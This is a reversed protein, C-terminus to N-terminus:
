SAARNSRPHSVLETMLQAMHPSPALGLDARLTRAFSQYRQAAVGLNGEAIDLRILARHASERFPDVAVAALGAVAARTFDGDAICQECLTELARVRLENVHNREGTLWPEDWDPLLREANVLGDIVEARDGPSPPAAGDLGRVALSRLEYLDVSVCSGLALQGEAAEVADPAQRRVQWLATRLNAWAREEPLDPWLVGSVHSRPVPRERIVLLALLRRSATPLSVPGVGNRLAFEGLLAIRTTTGSEPM